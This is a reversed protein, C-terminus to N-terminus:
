VLNLALTFIFARPNEINATDLRQWRLYAEQVIDEAENRDVRGHLFKLM